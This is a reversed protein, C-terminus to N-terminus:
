ATAEKQNLFELGLLGKAGVADSSVQFKAEEARLAEEKAAKKAAKAEQDEETAGEPTEEEASVGRTQLKVIEAILAARAADGSGAAGGGSSDEAQARDMRELVEEKTRMRTDAYRKHTEEWYYQDLDLPKATTKVQCDVELDAIDRADPNWDVFRAYTLQQDQHREILKAQIVQKALFPKFQMTQEILKDLLKDQEPQKYAAKEAAIANEDRSYDTAAVRDYRKRKESAIERDTAAGYEAAWDFSPLCAGPNEKKYLAYKADAEAERQMKSFSSSDKATYVLWKGMEGYNTSGENKRYSWVGHRLVREIVQMPAVAQGDKLEGSKGCSALTSEILEQIEDIGQSYKRSHPAPKEGLRLRLIELAVATNEASGGIKEQKPFHLVPAVGTITRKATAASRPTSSSVARRMAM